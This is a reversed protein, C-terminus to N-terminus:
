RDPARTRLTRDSARGSVFHFGRLSAFTPLSRLEHPHGCWQDTIDVFSPKHKPPKTTPYPFILIAPHLACGARRFIPETQTPPKTPHPRTAQGSLTARSPSRVMLRQSFPPIFKVDRGVFSLNRNPPHNRLTRDPKSRVLKRQHHNSSRFDGKYRSVLISRM